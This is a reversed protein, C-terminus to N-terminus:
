WREFHVFDPNFRTRAELQEGPRGLAIAALPVVSGPLSLIQRVKRVAEEDPYVGVWCAGVGMAHAALLLNEIAASCDQLLYSLNRNLTAELDGGVVVALAATPLMKGGPLAEGLKQLTQLHRVVVFRWPDKTMASPAAIAAELLKTVTRDSVEGPSYIRTSRRGFIFELRTSENLDMGMAGM